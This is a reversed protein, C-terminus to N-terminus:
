KKEIVGNRTNLSPDNQTTGDNKLCGFKSDCLKQDCHSCDQQCDKGYNPYRGPNLGILRYFGADCDTSLCFCCVIQYSALVICVVM